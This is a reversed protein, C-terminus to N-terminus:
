APAWVRCFGWLLESVNCYMSKGLWSCSGYQWGLCLVFALSSNTSRELLVSTALLACVSSMAFLCAQSNARGMEIDGNHEVTGNTASNVTGNTAGNTAAHGNTAGNQQVAARASAKHFSAGTLSDCRELQLPGPPKPFKRCGAIVARLWM